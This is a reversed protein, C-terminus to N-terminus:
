PPPCASGTEGVGGSWGLMSVLFCVGHLVWFRELLRALRTGRHLTWRRLFSVCSAALLM